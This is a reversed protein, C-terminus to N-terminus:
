QAKRASTSLRDLVLRAARRVGGPEGLHESVVSALKEKMQLLREPQLLLEVAMDSIAKPTAEEQIFEPCVLQEGLINPLGIYDIGLSKKRLRWEAEMLKSGRYVIIMPKHLIAAELTATGSATIALDARAMADYTLGEVLVLPVGHAPPRPMHQKWPEEQDREHAIKPDLLVGEATALRPSPALPPAKLASTLARRVVEGGYRALWARTQDRELMEELADRSVNPALPVLFQAGPVRQAIDGAASLLAPLIHELEQNRSGPLLAIVAKHPDLGFRRDFEDPALEPRVLDRLPHGVFHADIGASRLLPESWAFPTIMRDAARALRQLRKASARRRWSGPPIYYFVPCINRERAWTGLPINFAGFDILILADPPRRSLAKKMRSLAMMVTPVKALSEVVGIAGWARSDCMLRVGADKMLVGGIGWAEIPDAIGSAGAEDRIAALLAAGHRDGSAEGAVFAIDM